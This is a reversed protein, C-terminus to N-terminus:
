GGINRSKAWDPKKWRYLRSRFILNDIPHPFISKEEPTHGPQWKNSHVMFFGYVDTNIRTTFRPVKDPGSFHLAAKVREISNM